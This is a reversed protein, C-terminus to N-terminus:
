RNGSRTGQKMYATLRLGCKQSDEPIDSEVKYSFRPLSDVGCPSDLYNVTMDKIRIESM